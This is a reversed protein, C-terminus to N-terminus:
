LGVVAHSICEHELEGCIMWKNHEPDYCEITKQIINASNKGGFVFIKNKVVCAAHGYRGNNMSKVETWTDESIDYKEVTERAEQSEGGIAYIFGACFVAAFRGRAINMNKKIVWQRNLNDLREVSEISIREKEDSASNANAKNVPVYSKNILGGIAFLSWVQNTGSDYNAAVLAHYARPVNTKADLENWINEHFKETTELDPQDDPTEGGNVVLKGDYLAAGFFKRNEKMMKREEWKSNKKSLDLSFVSINTTVPENFEGGICYVLKDQKVLCHGQPKSPLEPLSENSISYKGEECSITTKFVSYTPSGNVCLIEIGNGCDSKEKVSPEKSM